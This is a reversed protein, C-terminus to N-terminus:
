ESRRDRIARPLATVARGARWTPSTLVAGLERRLRDREAVARDLQEAREALTQRQAAEVRASEQFASRLREYDEALLVSPPTEALSMREEEEMLEDM